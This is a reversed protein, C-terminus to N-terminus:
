INWGGNREFILKVVTKESKQYELELEKDEDM